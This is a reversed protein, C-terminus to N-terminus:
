AGALVALAQIVIAAVLGFGGLTLCIFSGTNRIWSRFESRVRVNIQRGVLLDGTIEELRIAVSAEGKRKPILTQWTMVGDRLLGSMRGLQDDDGESAVPVAEDPWWKKEGPELSYRLALDHPRFDASQVRLVVNRTQDSLNHLYCFLDAKETVVNELDVDFLLDDMDLRKGVALDQELRDILRYFAPCSTLTREILSDWIRENFVNHELIISVGEDDLIESLELHTTGKDIAGKRRRHMTMLFKERAFDRQIDQRLHSDFILIFDDFHSRLLPDMHTRLLDSFVLSLTSPHLPPNYATLLGDKEVMHFKRNRTSLHQGIATTILSSAALLSVGVIPNDKTALLSLSTIAFAVVGMSLASSHSNRTRQMLQNVSEFGHMSTVPRHALAATQVESDFVRRTWKVRERHVWLGLCFGLQIVIALLTMARGFSITLTPEISNAWFEPSKTAFAWATFLFFLAMVPLILILRMGDSIFQRDLGHFAAEKTRSLELDNM